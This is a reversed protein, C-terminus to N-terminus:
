LEFSFFYEKLCYINGGLTKVILFKMLVYKLM